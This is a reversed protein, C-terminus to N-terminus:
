SCWCDTTTHRPVAPVVDPRRVQRRWLVDLRHWTNDSLPATTNLTLTVPGGGLDLLLSPRGARLELAVVDRNAQGPPIPPPRDPGAYLLTADQSRTLVELSLHVEACAPVSPVWAWARQKDGGRFHRSLLKCKAGRTHHPCVCRPPLPLSLDAYQRTGRPAAEGTLCEGM